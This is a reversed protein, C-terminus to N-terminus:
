NVDIEAKTMVLDHRRIYVSQLQCVVGTRAGLRLAHAARDGHREPASGTRVLRRLRARPRTGSLGRRPLPYPTAGPRRPTIVIRPPVRRPPDAQALASAAASSPAVPEAAVPGSACLGLVAATALLIARMGTEEAKGREVSEIAPKADVDWCYSSGEGIRLRIDSKPVVLASSPYVRTRHPPNPHPDSARRAQGGGPKSHLGVEARQPTLPM